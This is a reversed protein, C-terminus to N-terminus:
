ESEVYIGAVEIEGTELGAKICFNARPSVHAKTTRFPLQYSKWEPSLTVKEQLESAHPSKGEEFVFLVSTNKASRGWFHVVMNKGSAVDQPVEKVMQACWPKASDVEDVVLRVAHKNDVPLQQVVINDMVAVAPPQTILKWKTAHPDIVTGNATKRSGTASAPAAKAVAGTKSATRSKAYLMGALAVLAFVIVIAGVPKIIIRM